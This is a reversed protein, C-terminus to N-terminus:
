WRMREVGLGEGVGRVEWAGLDVVGFAPDHVFGGGGPGQGGKDQAADLAACHPGFLDLREGADFKGLQGRQRM